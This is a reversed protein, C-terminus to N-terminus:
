NPADVCYRFCARAEEWREQQILCNGYDFILHSIFDPYEENREKLINEIGGESIELMSKIVEGAKKYEGGTYYEFYQPSLSELSYETTETTKREASNAFLPNGVVNSFLFIAILLLPITRIPFKM